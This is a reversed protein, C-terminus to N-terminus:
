DAVHDFVESAYFGAVGACVFSAPDEELGRGMTSLKVPSQALIDSLGATSITSLKLNPQARLEAVHANFTHYFDDSLLASLREGSSFEPVPVVCRRTVVDKLVRLTHHSIGFHRSRRDANSSRLAAIPTGGLIGVANLAEGVNTGSFGWKTGTGLNGPGQAVITVDAHCVLRAALLATYINVAELSGGYAQGCTITGIIVSDRELRAATQSFWAPLSGGDTMVYAIRAEPSR